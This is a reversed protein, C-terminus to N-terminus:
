IQGFASALMLKIRNLQNVESSGPDYEIPVIQLKEHRAKVAKIIGRANVHAPLCGFPQMCVIHSVGQHAMERIEGPLKWGEGSQNGLGIIEGADHALSAIRSPAEFRKSTELVELYIKQYHEIMKLMAKGAIHGKLSGDLHKYNYTQNYASALFLTLLDSSVVEVGEKELMGIIHNNAIPNLKVLLEGVIGVRPKVLQEHCPLADFDAIIGKLTQKFTQRLPLKFSEKCKELWKEYLAQASDKVKEYPRVRYLVKTLLDGYIIAAIAKPLLKKSFGDFASDKKVGALSLTLVSVESMGAEALAKELVKVYNTFRCQGETQAMLIATQKLDYQGSKLANMIQGIVVMAPYCMDNHLYQMGDDLIGEENKLIVVEYGDTEFLGKLLEFHTPAFQPVLITKKHTAQALVIEERQTESKFTHKEREKLAAKLSRLRIRAAGLSSGEDIKINTYTKGAEYLLRQVEDTTIADIGCGFSTLQVLELHQYQTAVKAAHYLRSHYTWQNVVQLEEQSIKSLHAVSDETVVAMGLTNILQDIGHNIEPDIHYPRGSLIITTIGKSGMEELINEAKLRIKAKFQEQAVHAAAIATNMEAKSINFPKLTELLTRSLKKDNRLTVFPHMYMVNQIGEINNHVVEPYSTVVPCNFHNINNFDADEEHIICPYFIHQVGKTLLSEIHGHVMKAPYCATESAISELGTEYLAKSSPDSLVIDFGLQAFLTAWFPYNEYMNLVMPIGIHGRQTKHSRQPMYSRLKEYKYAVLNPLKNEVKGNGLGKECRNGSIFRKGGKFRNITLQCHNNCKGCRAHTTTMKQTEDGQPMQLTTSKATQKYAKQALLAMGFAGMLGAIDPRVVERSALNEFARLVAENYFTGGQVVIHKGLAEPNKLKIVKYLTNKVVSYALGASIDEVSYGEKQAQKVRSNMFVTCKSGLDAPNKAFLAKQAFEEIQLGLSNSFTQLFSGCGASCAENLTISQIMGDQIRLCKMDQGGIDLIFDVEPSFYKAAEFHAVTEIEGIDMSFAEKLLAEGYGTVGCHAIYAAPPLQKNLDRLIITAADVPNGQNSGYYRYVIEGKESTLVAKTTTSGADIGLYCPGKVEEISLSTAKNQHHRNIFEAYVRDNEFLPPLTTAGESIQQHNALELQRMLEEYTFVKAKEDVSLATGMAVYLASDEPFIVEDEKLDLQRIFAARLESLFTLPGGLFAVKGRIPRGCALVSITQVVVAHFISAAIDEKLAGENLLPQVDTKAFVGCRAAIPYIHKYAKAMENLGSADTHLLAAMQDIFAGTGGACTGNMRQEIGGEFYIIKADEGGLEIVVDTEPHTVKMAKTSAIVEQIFPIGMKEALGMGGSGTMQIQLSEDQLYIKAQELQKKLTKRIDSLHRNYTKYIMENNENLVVLKITTSGIDIGIRQMVLRTEELRRNRARSKNM